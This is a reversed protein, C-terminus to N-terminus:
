KEKGCVGSSKGDKKYTRLILITSIIDLVGLLQMVYHIGAPGGNNEPQKRLYMLYCIGVCGSELIMLGTIVIPIPVLFILIGRSAGVLVFWVLFSYLFNLIYFPISYLKLLKWSSRLIEAKNQHYAAVAMGVCIWGTVQVAVIMAFYFLLLGVGVASWGDMCFYLVGAPVAISLFLHVYMGALFLIASRM